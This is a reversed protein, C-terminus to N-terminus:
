EKEAFALTANENGGGGGGAGEGGLGGLEETVSGGGSGEEECEGCVCLEECLRLWEELLLNM